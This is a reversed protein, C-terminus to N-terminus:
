GVDRGSGFVVAVTTQLSRDCRSQILNLSARGVGADISSCLGGHSALDM